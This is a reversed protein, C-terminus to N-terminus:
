VKGSKGAKVRITETSYRVGKGKYADPPRFGRINAATQGVLEKDIGSVTVFNEVRHTQLQRGREVQIDIGQPPQFHIPHSYGLNFVIERGSPEAKYGVGVIELRKSFGQTVGVVMNNILARMLGHRARNQRTDDDRSVVLDDGERAVSVGSVLPRELQGKPGSVSVTDGLNVTVGNPVPIPKRGIRSM